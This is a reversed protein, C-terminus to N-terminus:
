GIKGVSGSPEDARSTALKSGVGANLSAVPGILTVTMAPQRGPVDPSERLVGVHLGRDEIEKEALLRRIAVTLSRSWFGSRGCVCEPFGEGQLQRNFIAKLGVLLRSNMMLAGWEHGRIAPDTWGPRGV